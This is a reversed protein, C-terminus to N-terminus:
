CTGASTTKVRIKSAKVIYKAIYTIKNKPTSINKVRKANSIKISAVNKVFLKAHKVLTCDTKM